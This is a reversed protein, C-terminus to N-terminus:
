EPKINAARIVKAWKETEEVILKAYEAASGPITTAGLDALKAKMTTDALAANIEKNLKEVVDAPTNRPTGVGFWASAEYGPVFEKLTQRRVHGTGSRRRPGDARAPVGNYPAHTMSTGAMMKFLEGAV